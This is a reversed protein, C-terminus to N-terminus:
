FEAQKVTPEQPSVSINDLYLDHYLGNEEAMAYNIFFFLIVVVFLIILELVKYGIIKM